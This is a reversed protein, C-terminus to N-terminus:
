GEGPREGLPLPTKFDTKAAPPTDAHLSFPKTINATGHPAAPYTDYEEGKIKEGWPEGSAHEIKGM